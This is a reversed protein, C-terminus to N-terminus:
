LRKIALIDYDWKPKALVKRERWECSHGFRENPPWQDFAINWAEKVKRYKGRNRNVLKLDIRFKAGKYGRGRQERIDDHATKWTIYRKDADSANGPYKPHKRRPFLEITFYRFDWRDERNKDGELELVDIWMKSTDISRVIDRVVFVAASEGSEIYSIYEADYKIKDM